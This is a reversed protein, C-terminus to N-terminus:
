PRIWGTPKWVLALGEVDTCWLGFPSQDGVVRVVSPMDPIERIMWLGWSRAHAPHENLFFREGDIQKKYLECVFTLHQMGEPALARWRESDRLLNQLKSFAACRQLDLSYSYAVM